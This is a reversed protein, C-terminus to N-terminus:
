GMLSPFAKQRCKRALVEQLHFRHDPVMKFLEQIPQLLKVLAVLRDIREFPKAVQSEIHYGINRKTLLDTHQLSLIRMEDLLNFVSVLCIAQHTAINKNGVPLIESLLASRIIRYFPGKGKIRGKKLSMRDSVARCQIFASSSIACTHRCTRDM